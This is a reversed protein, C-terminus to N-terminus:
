MANAGSRRAALTLRLAHKATLLAAVLLAFEISGWMLLMPLAYHAARFVNARCMAPDDAGPLMHSIAHLFHHHNDEDERHEHETGTEHLRRSQVVKPIAEKKAKKMEDLSWAHGEQGVIPLTLGPKVGPALGHGDAGLLPKADTQSPPEGKALMISSMFHLHQEPAVHVASTPCVMAAVKEPHLMVHLGVMTGTMLTFASCAASLLAVIRAWRGSYAAGLSGPAAAALVFYSALLGLIGAPSFLRCMSFLLLMKASMKYKAAYPELDTYLQQLGASSDNVTPLEAHVVVEKCSVTSM